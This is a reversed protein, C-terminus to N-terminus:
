SAKSLLREKTLSRKEKDKDQIIKVAKTQVNQKWGAIIRHGHAAGHTQFLPGAPNIQRAGRSQRLSSILRVM